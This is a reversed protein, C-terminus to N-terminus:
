RMLWYFFFFMIKINRFDDIQSTDWFGPKNMQWDIHQVNDRYRIFKGNSSTENAFRWMLFLYWSFIFRIVCWGISPLICLKSTESTSFKKRVWVPEELASRAGGPYVPKEPVSPSRRSLLAGGLYVPNGSIFWYM